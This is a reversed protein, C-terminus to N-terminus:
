LGRRRIQRTDFPQVGASVWGHDRGARFLKEPEIQRCKVERMRTSAPCWSAGLIPSKALGIRKGILGLLSVRLRVAM